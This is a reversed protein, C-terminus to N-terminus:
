SNFFNPHEAGETVRAQWLGRELAGVIAVREIVEDRSSEDVSLAPGVVVKVRV